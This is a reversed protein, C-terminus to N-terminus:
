AMEIASAAYTFGGASKEIRKELFTQGDNKYSIGLEQV